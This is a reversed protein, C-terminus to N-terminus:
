HDHIGLLSWQQGLRGEGVDYAIYISKSSKQTGETREAKLPFVLM